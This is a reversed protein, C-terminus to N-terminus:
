FWGSVMPVWEQKWDMSFSDEMFGTGPTLFTPSFQELSGKRGWGGQNKQEKERISLRDDWLSILVVLNVTIWVRNHVVTLNYLSRKYSMPPPFPFIILLQAEFKVDPFASVNLKPCPEFSRLLMLVRWSPLIFGSSVMHKLHRKFFGIHPHSGADEKYYTFEEGLAEGIAWLFLIQRCHM